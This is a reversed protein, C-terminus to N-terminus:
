VLVNHPTLPAGHISRAHRIVSSKVAARYPCFPCTYPKEGTHTRVHRRLDETQGFFPYLHHQQEETQAKTTGDEEWGPHVARLHQKLHSNQSSAYPCVPCQYPREGTHTRLHFLLHARQSARYTCHPCAYPREGTHTRVHSNLHVRQAARYPCHPCAYPREGTHTRTHTNLHDRRHTSYTCLTCSYPKDQGAAQLLSLGKTAEPRTLTVPRRPVVHGGEQHLRLHDQLNGEDHTKYPCRPCSLYRIIAHTRLHTVLHSRQAARYHCHPCHFPKEGTHRRIHKTLIYNTRAAYPCHPCQYPKEGTHIRIHEQLHIRQSARYPCHPCAHPKESPLLTHRPNLSSSSSPGPKRLAAYPLYTFAKDVIVGQLSIARILNM